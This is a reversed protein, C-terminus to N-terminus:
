EVKIYPKMQEFKKEGIGSVNMIDEVTTFGNNETRYEIIKKATTEGVGPLLMLQQETATNLNIKGDNNQTSTTSEQTPSQLANDVPIYNHTFNRGIFVGILVCIFMGTICILIWAQKKM